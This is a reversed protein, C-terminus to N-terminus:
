CARSAHAFAAEIARAARVLIREFDRDARGQDVAIEALGNSNEYRFATGPLRESFAALGAATSSVTPVEGVKTVIVQLTASHPAGSALPEPPSNFRWDRGSGSYNPM